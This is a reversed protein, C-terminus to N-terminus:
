GKRKLDGLDDFVGRECGMGVGFVVPRVVHKYEVVVGRKCGM